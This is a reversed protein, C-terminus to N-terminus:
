PPALELTDVRAREFRGVTHDFVWREVHCRRAQEGCEARLVNVSNPVGQRVRSSTATGAQVAWVPRPLAPGGRPQLSMVFPLHIHGGLVLDAGAAAWARVAERGGRLLDIEDEAHQVAVPQHVVVVRIQRPQARAAEELARATADIQAASIEGHKHRYWRTTNTSLVCWDGTRLEPALDDGLAARYRGYPNFLRAGMGFLPIDHNGPVVVWRPVALRDIYARAAAFQGRTARQTVDGSLVALAPPDARVLAALADAVAPRETGFHTDSLHLLATM